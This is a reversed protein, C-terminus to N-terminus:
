QVSDAELHGRGQLVERLQPRGDTHLRARPRDGDASDTSRMGGYLVKRVIDMRSMTAWNLFNGSWHGVCYFSADTARKPVFRGEEYAYCKASDFYGYYAFNPLYTTDTTGDGNLDNWDTYAKYYLAHDNSLAFLVRPRVSHTTTLPTQAIGAPSTAPTAVGIGALAGLLLFRARLNM